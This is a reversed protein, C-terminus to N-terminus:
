LLPLLAIISVGVIVLLIILGIIILGQINSKKNSKKVSHKNYEAIEAKSIKYFSSTKKGCLFYFIETETTKKINADIKKGNKLLLEVCSDKAITVDKLALAALSIQLKLAFCISILIIKKM